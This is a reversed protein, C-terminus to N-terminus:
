GVNIGNRNNVYDSLTNFLYILSTEWKLMLLKIDNCVNEVNSVFFTSVKSFHENKNL